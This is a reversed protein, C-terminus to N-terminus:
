SQGGRVATLLPGFSGQGPIEVFAQPRAGPAVWVTAGRPLEASPRVDLRMLQSTQLRGRLAPGLADRAAAKEVVSAVHEAGAGVPVGARVFFTDFIARADDTTRGDHYVSALLQWDQTTAKTGLQQISRGLTKAEVGTLAGDVFAHQVDGAFSQVEEAPPQVVVHDTDPAPVVPATITPAPPTVVAPPATITPAPPAVVAPPATITLAPPAVVAPPTPQHPTPPVFVDQMPPPTVTVPQTIAPPTLLNAPSRPANMIQVGIFAPIVLGVIAVSTVGWKKIRAALDEKPPRTTSSVASTTTAHTTHTAHTAQTSRTSTSTETPRRNSVNPM